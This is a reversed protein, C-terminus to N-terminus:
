DKLPELLSSNYDGAMVNNVFYGTGSVVRYSHVLGSPIFVSCPSDLTFSEEGLRVEVTLGTMGPEAGIFLFVSDVTHRHSDVHGAGYDDLRPIERVISYFRCDSVFREDIMVYRTGPGARHYRLETASIAAPKVVLDKMSAPLSRFETGNSTGLRDPPTWAYALADEEVALRHLRATHQFACRGVVPSRMDRPTRALAAVRRSLDHLRAPDDLTWQDRFQLNALLAVTDTIGCREGLGNVSCSVWEAGADVAALSNALALGRDDHLHVEVPLGPCAERVARVTEAVEGPEMRGVTDALCIRDAGQAAALIAAPILDGPATRSADEITYRTKLGRGRAHRIAQALREMLRDRSDHLRVRQTVDNVGLFIGVWGAGSDAAADIDEQRARAHALVPVPLGLAAVRRVREFEEASVFPHGCEIMDVGVAALCRAIEASQEASFRVGPAQNGERLTCDVLRPRIRSLSM